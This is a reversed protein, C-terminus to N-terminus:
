DGERPDMARRLVADPSMGAGRTERVGTDGSAKSLKEGGPKFILPHHLFLPMQQRGLMRALRLQRGTSSLLDEGRIVLDIGQDMDDVTVAFQYTWNGLRDRILMDGCQRSPDQAMEGLLLDTFTESGPEMIVRWGRGPGPELGLERCTGPYRTEENFADGALEAIDKRSCACVYALERARLHELVEEYRAQRESQRPAEEDPVFGLWDLDERLADVYEERCRTNDHDEIRLVVRGNWERAVDWTWVANRVHGVHLYGTPSPAYRTRFGLPLSSPRLPLIM